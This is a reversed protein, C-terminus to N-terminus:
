RTTSVEIEMQSPSTSSVVSAVDVKKVPTAKAATLLAEVESPDCGGAEATALVAKLAKFVDPNKSKNAAVATAYATDREKQKAISAEVEVRKVEYGADINKQIYYIGIGLVILIGAGIICSKWEWEEIVSASTLQLSKLTPAIVLSIVSMLKILINLAPGSTDKFPDGVTDGVVTADYHEKENKNYGLAKAYKKANDWAGGANSMAVALM